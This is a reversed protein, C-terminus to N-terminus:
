IEAKLKVTGKDEIVFRNGNDHSGLVFGSYPNFLEIKRWNWLSEREDKSLSSVVQTVLCVEKLM